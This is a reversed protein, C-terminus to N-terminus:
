RWSLIDAEMKASKKNIDYIGKQISDDESVMFSSGTGKLPAGIYGYNLMTKAWFHDDRAKGGLKGDYRVAGAATTKKEVRLVHQLAVPHNILYYKKTSLAKKFETALYRSMMMSSNKLEVKSNFTLRLLPPFEGDEEMLDGITKENTDDIILNIPKFKLCQRKIMKIQKPFKDQTELIKREYVGNEMVQGIHISTIDRKQAPDIAIMYVGNDDNEEKEVSTVCPYLLEPAIYRFHVDSPIGLREQKFCDLDEARKIEMKGIDQWFYPIKMKQLLVEKQKKSNILVNYKIEYLKKQINDLEEMKKNLLYLPRNLDIEEWNEISPFNYATYGNGPAGEYIRWFLDTKVLPTTEITIQGGQSIFDFIADYVERQQNVRIVMQAFEDICINVSDAGRIGGPSAALGCIYSEGIQEKIGKPLNKFHNFLKELHTSKKEDIDIIRSGDFWVRCDASPREIKLKLWKKAQKENTAIYYQWTYPMLQAITIMEYGIFSSFGGQRGKNIVRSLATRDGLLGTTLLQRHPEVLKYDHLSGDSSRVRFISEM